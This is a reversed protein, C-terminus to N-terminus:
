DKAALAPEPSASADGRPVSPPRLGGGSDLDGARALLLGAALAGARVAPLTRPGLHVLEAGAGQLLATETPDLGGEPGIVVALPREADIDTRALPAPADLVCALVRTGEPLAALAGDLGALAHVPPIAARHALQAAERAVEQWRQRRSAAREESPRPVSRRTVVPHIAAAGAEVLATVATEFDRVLAQLALLRLRPEGAAPRSWLVRGTIRARAVGEVVVGHEMRAPDVVRITEGRRVRLPGALHRAAAGDLVLRGGDLSASDVFLRPM